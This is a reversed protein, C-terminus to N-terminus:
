ERNVTTLTLGPHNKNGREAFAAVCFCYEIKRDNQSSTSPQCSLRSAFCLSCARLRVAPTLRRARLVLGPHARSTPASSCSSRGCRAVPLRVPSPPHKNTRPLPNHSVATRATAAVYVSVFRPLHLPLRAVSGILRPLSLPSGLKPRPVRFVSFVCHRRGSM